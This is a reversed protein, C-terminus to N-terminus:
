NVRLDTYVQYGADEAEKNSCFYKGDVYPGQNHSDGVPFYYSRRNLFGRLGVVVQHDGTCRMQTAYYDVLRVSYVYLVGYAIAIFVVISTSIIIIRRKLQTNKIQQKKTM